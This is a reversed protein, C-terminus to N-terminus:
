HISVTSPFIYVVFELIVPNRLTSVSPFTKTEPLKRRSATASAEIDYSKTLLTRGCHCVSTVVGTTSVPDVPRDAKSEDSLGTSWKCTGTRRSERLYNTALLPRTLELLGVGTAGVMAEGAYLHM